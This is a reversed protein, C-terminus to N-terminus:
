GFLNLILQPASNAISLAQVGLKQKVQLSQLSASERALDADVLNGIGVEITDSIKEAFLKQAELTKSGAGFRTLVANVNALSSDVDTITLSAATLTAISQTATLVINTSGLTLSEHAITIKQGGDPSTIAVLEDTGNDILNTGNFEANGTITTIQDRLANFDQALADRSVQDLGADAAAVAKEKM